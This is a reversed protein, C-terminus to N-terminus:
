TSALRGLTTTHRHDNTRGHLNAYPNEGKYYVLTNRSIMQDILPGITAQKDNEL